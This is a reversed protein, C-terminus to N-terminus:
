KIGDGEGNIALVRMLELFGKEAAEIHEKIHNLDFFIESVYDHLLGAEERESNGIKKLLENYIREFSQYCDIVWSSLASFELDTINLANRERVLLSNWAAALKDNRGM